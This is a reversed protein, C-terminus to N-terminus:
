FSPSRTQQLDPRTYPRTSRSANKLRNRRQSVAWCTREVIPMGSTATLDACSVQQRYVSRLYTEPDALVDIRRRRLCPGATSTHQNGTLLERATQPEKPLRMRKTSVNACRIQM